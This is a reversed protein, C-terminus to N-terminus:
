VFSPPDARLLSGGLHLLAVTSAPRIPSASPDSGHITPDSGHTTPLPAPSMYVTYLPAPGSAAVISAQRAARVYVRPQPQSCHRPERLVPPPVSPDRALRSFESGDAHLLKRRCHFLNKAYGAVLTALRLGPSPQPVVVDPASSARGLAADLWPPRM